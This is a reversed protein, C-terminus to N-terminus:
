MPLPSQLRFPELLLVQLLSGLEPHQTGVKRSTAGVMLKGNLTELGASGGDKWCARTNPHSVTCSCGKSVSLM